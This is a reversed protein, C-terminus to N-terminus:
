MLASFVPTLWNGALMAVTPTISASYHLSVSQKTEVSQGSALGLTCSRSVLQQFFKISLLAENLCLRFLALIDFMPM